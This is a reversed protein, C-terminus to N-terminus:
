PTTSLEVLGLRDWLRCCTVLLETVRKGTEL